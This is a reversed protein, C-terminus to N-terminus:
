DKLKIGFMGLIFSVLMMANFPPVFIFLCCVLFLILSRRYDPNQSSPPESEWLIRSILEINQTMYLTSFLVCVAYFIIAIKIWIEM